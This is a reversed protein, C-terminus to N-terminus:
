FDFSKEDSILFKHVATHKLSYVSRVKVHKVVTKHVSTHTTPLPPPPEGFTDVDDLQGDFEYAICDAVCNAIIVIAFIM